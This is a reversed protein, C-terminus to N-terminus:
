INVVPLAVACEIFMVSNRLKFCKRQRKKKEELYIYQTWENWWLKFAKSAKEFVAPAIM